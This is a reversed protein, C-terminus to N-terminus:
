VPKCVLLSHGYGLGDHITEVELGAEHIYGLLDQSYFMKSNGNALATFYVSIQALCYSATEYRQRDWLTEMIYLRGDPALARRARQLLSVVEPGSFCDLFQSMWVADYDTPFTASPDLLNMGHGKIRDAEALHATQQKMMAIQQPLDLITVEVETDHQVCRTAWRGTNGGVDLLRRPHRAFVVALAEDFSSDSYFHDFALWSRQVEPELESLGEYITPWQGLEGLGAPRGERLAAELHFLGKYNVDHNFDMNVRAMPDHLLFWGVKSLRYRGAEDRLITGATLSSELLIQTAYHSLSAWQAIEELTHGETHDGLYGLIGMRVMLRSVQFVIPGQVIEHALRQAQAASLHDKTYRNDNTTM